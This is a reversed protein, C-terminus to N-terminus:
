CTPRSACRRRRRRGRRSRTRARVAEIRRVGSAVAGESSSRSCRRDPRHADLHTGGCLETSFDGIQQRVRVRDGYKEGFLAMAGRRSRRRSTMETQRCSSTRRCQRQRARSRRRGRRGQGRATALLRLAPPRACWRAPRRWTTGLVERLAAHLLHTATHNSACHGARRRSEVSVAVDDGSALAGEDGDRPPRHLEAGRTTRTTSGRRQGDGSSPAPTAWRAAPSRTSPTRDLVIEVRRARSAGRVGSATPSWRSSRAGARAPPRLRPVGARLERRRRQYVRAAGDGGDAAAFAAGARARERQREMAREFTATARPRGDLRRGPLDGRRSRDPLRLTDYLTFLFEGDVDRGRERKARRSVRTSRACAATSRRPSASRRAARVAGRHARAARAIEPYADGM